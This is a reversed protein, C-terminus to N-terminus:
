SSILSVASNRRCAGQECTLHSAFVSHEFECEVWPEPELDKLSDSFKQAAISLFVNDVM